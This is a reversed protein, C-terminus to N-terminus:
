PTEPPILGAVVKREEMVLINFTRCAARTNMVEIGIGARHFMMLLEPGPFRQVKGTGIIVLEPELNLLPQLTEESLETFSTASWGPDITDPSLILPTQYTEDAITIGDVGAARVYVSDGPHDRTLEM